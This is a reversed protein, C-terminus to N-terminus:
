AKRVTVLVLKGRGNEFFQRGILAPLGGEGARLVRELAQGIFRKLVMSGAPGLGKIGIGKSTSSSWGTGRLMGLAVLEREVNLPASTLGVPTEVLVRLVAAETELGHVRRSGDVGRPNPQPMPRKADQLAIDDDPEPDARM